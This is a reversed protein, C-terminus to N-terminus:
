FPFIFVIMAGFFGTEESPFSHSPNIQRAELDEFVNLALPM